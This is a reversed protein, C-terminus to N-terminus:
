TAGRGALVAGATRALVYLDMWLSWNRIYYADHSQQLDLDGESRVKVQWLGTVGPRVRRRLELVAHDYHELHYRPFPRPGVLSLNGSVVQWLQPLEDLSFRRLFHGIGPVIRPDNGLKFNRQWEARLASDAALAAELRREADPYMTRLKWVRITRGGYGEREQGYLTSGRSSLRVALASLFLLPLTLVALLSGLVLDIGRKLVRNRLLLLQNVYEVGVVGGLNKLQVGEVPLEGSRHVWLVQRFRAQLRALWIPSWQETPGDVMVAVRVGRAAYGDASEVTGAVPVGGVTGPASEEHSALVAIPRYGLTLARQLSAVTHEAISGTGLVICPEGWWSRRRVVLLLLFRGLPVLVLAFGWLLLITMRSYRPPLKFVFDLAALVLFVLSTALSLRRLIEVGGLGFGPYLGNRWYVIVFLGLLPWLRTYLQLPQGHVPAAWLSVAVVTAAALALLDTMALLGIRAVQMLWRRLPLAPSLSPPVVDITAPQPRRRAVGAVMIDGETLEASPAAVRAVSDSHKPAQM